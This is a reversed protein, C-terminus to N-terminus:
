KFWKKRNQRETETMGLSKDGLQVWAQKVAATLEAMEHPDSSFRHDSGPLNKDLTFHKEILVAGMAVSLVAAPIGESHDSFGTLCGFTDRLTKVRLINIDKDPAPYASTCHLLILKENGTARFARVARDIDAITAMGTSIVTPLGTKGMATILRIDQLCDSGNKVSDVGLKMLDRLGDECMPTSQFGIGIKDCLSKIEAMFTYNIECRRFMDAQREKVVKDGNKYTWFESRQGIFQDTKYNQLKICDAGSEKAALVMERCLRINGNHNIGIEAVVYPRTLLGVKTKGISIEPQM